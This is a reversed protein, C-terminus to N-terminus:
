LLWTDLQQIVPAQAYLWIVVERWYILSLTVISITVFGEAITVSNIINDREVASKVIRWGVRVAWIPLIILIFLVSAIMNFNEASVQPATWLGLTLIILFTLSLNAFSKAIRISSRRSNLFSNVASLWNPLKQWNIQNMLRRLIFFSPLFVILRLLDRGLLAYGIKSLVPQHSPVEGNLIFVVFLMDARIASVEKVSRIGRRLTPNFWISKGKVKWVEPLRSWTFFLITILVFVLDFALDTSKRISDDVAYLAFIFNTTFWIILLYIISVYVEKHVRGLYKLFSIFKEEIRNYTNGMDQFM